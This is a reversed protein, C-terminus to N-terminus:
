SFYFIFLIKLYYNFNIQVVMDQKIKLPIILAKPYFSGSEVM